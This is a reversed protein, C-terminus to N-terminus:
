ISLDILREASWQAFEVLSERDAFTINIEEVIQVRPDSIVFPVSPELFLPIVPELSRFPLGKEFLFSHDAARYIRDLGLFKM